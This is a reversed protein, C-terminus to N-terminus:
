LCTDHRVGSRSDGCVRLNLQLAVTHQRGSRLAGGSVWAFEIKWEHAPRRNQARRESRAHRWLRQGAMCWRSKSFRRSFVEKRAEIVGIVTSVSWDGQCDKLGHRMTETDGFTAVANRVICVGDHSLFSAFIGDPAKLPLETM